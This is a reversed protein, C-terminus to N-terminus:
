SLKVASRATAERLDLGDFGESFWGYVPALLDLAKQRDGKEALLRALDRAARPELSKARRTLDSIVVSGPRATAQLRSALNPTEGVEAEEQASGDGVLDGVV